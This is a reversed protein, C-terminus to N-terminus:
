QPSCSSLCIYNIASVCNGSDCKYSYQDFLLPGEENMVATGLASSAPVKTVMATTREANFLSLIQYVQTGTLGELETYRYSGLGSRTFVLSDIFRQKAAPPLDDLPSNRTSQFYSSLEEASRIQPARDSGAGLDAGQETACASAVMSAIIGICMIGHNRLM